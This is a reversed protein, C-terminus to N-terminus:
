DKQSMVFSVKRNTSPPIPTLHTSFHQESFRCGYSQNRKREKCLDNLVGWGWSRNKKLELTFKM